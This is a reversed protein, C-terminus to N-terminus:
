GKFWKPVKEDAGMPKLNVRRFGKECHQVVAQFKRLQRFEHPEIFYKEEEQYNTSRKGGSYGYSRKMTKRKGITDAAIRASEEDAAKCVVRNAMNAIFVKAKKEDGIPPVLSTYSQTAAVVTARAERIVDVVNYDSTGDPSSTIIKQAEDAWLILLNHRAREEAPRDFRLLVHSYFVLKLLTHIYRRETKFRQPVAVCVVKGHDIEAMSFTSKEPCFVRAIDPLTFHGLRNALTGRVGGLQEPPQSAIQTEYHKVLAEAAKTERGRLLKMLAELCKESALLEHANALSVPMEACALAEFAFAMQLEAQAKFFPQDGGQGL